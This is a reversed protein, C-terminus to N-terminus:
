KERSKQSTSIVNETISISYDMTSSKQLELEKSLRSMLSVERQFEAFGDACGEPGSGIKLEKSVILRTGLTGRFIHGFGGSAFSKKELQVENENFVNVYDFSLDEGLSGVSIKANNCYLVLEGTTLMSVCSNYELRTCENRSVGNALCHPCVIFCKVPVMWMRQFLDRFIMRLEEDLRRLLSSKSSPVNTNRRSLLPARSITVCIADAQLAVKAIHRNDSIVIGNRWLALIKIENWEQLFTIVRGFAGVPLVDFSYIREQIIRILSGGRPEDVPLLSPIVWAGDARRPFAVKFQEFLEIVGSVEQVSMNHESRWVHHLEEKRIIGDKLWNHKFTIVTSFVNALWKVDFCVLDAKRSCFLEGMDHLFECARDLVFEDIGPFHSMMKHWSIRQVGKARQDRIWSALAEYSKPVERQGLGAQNVAIAIRQALLEGVDYDLCSVFLSAMVLESVQSISALEERVENERLKGVLDLHTGILIVRAPKLYDNAFSNCCRLWYSVRQRFDNDALSFVILCVCQGTLFFQHTAYFIEQGGFDFWTLPMGGKLKFSHVDIGDTSQNRQYQKGMVAYYLHTKGVGEKGLVLVKAGFWTSKAGSSCMDRLYELVADDGKAVVNSPLSRLPNGEVAKFDSLRTAMGIWVPIVDRFQYRIDLKTVCSLEAKDAGRELLVTVVDLNGTKAACSIGGKVIAGADLLLTCIDPTSAVHLATLENATCVFDVIVGFELLVACVDARGAKAALLLPSNGNPTLINLISQDAELLSRCIDAFGNVCTVHLATLGMCFKTVLAGKTILLRCIDLRGREAALFLPSTEGDVGCFNPDTRNELISKCSLVHGAAIALMLCHPGLVKVIEWRGLEISYQLATQHLSNQRFLQLRAVPSALLVNTVAVGGQVASHFIYDQNLYSSEVDVSGILEQVQNVLGSKLAIHFADRRRRNRALLATVEESLKADPDQCVETVSFNLQLGSALDEIGDTASFYCKALSRNQSLAQGFSRMGEKGIRNNSVDLCLLSANQALSAALVVVGELALDESFIVNEANGSGFVNASLDLTMLSCNNRLGDSISRVGEYRLLNRGLLLVQLVKTKKLLQELAAGGVPGIGNNALSLATISSNVSLAHRLYKVGDDGILNHDLHLFVLSGNGEIGKALLKCGAPGIKNGQLDLLLMSRTERLGLGLAAAGEDGLLNEQLLLSQLGGWLTKCQTLTRVTRGDLQNQSLDLSGINCRAQFARCLVSIDLFTCRQLVLSTVHEGIGQSLCSIPDTGSLDLENQMLVCCFTFFYFAHKSNIFGDYFYIGSLM